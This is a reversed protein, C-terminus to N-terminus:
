ARVARDSLSRSCASVEGSQTLQPLRMAARVPADDPNWRQSMSRDSSSPRAFPPSSNRSRAFALPVSSPTASSSRSIKQTGGIVPKVPAGSSNATSQPVDIAV